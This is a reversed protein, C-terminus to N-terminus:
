SIPARRPLFGAAFAGALALASASLMADRFGQPHAATPLAHGGSAAIVIGFVAIAVLNGIRSIASNIGSATGVDNSEAAGMVAALLPSVLIAFGVGLVLTAPLVSGAYSAGVGLRMFLAYGIAAIAGGVVLPIRAGIRDALMGSFPSLVAVIAITPVLVAGAATPGYSMVDQLEFPVFLLAGGLPAYILFTYLNAIAFARSRFMRLPVIPADSRNEVVLFAAFLLLGAGLIALSLPDAMARQMHILAVVILGLAITLCASGLVDPKGREGGARSEPVLLYALLLVVAALPINILFVARWTFSQTLWGGLVPGMALTIASAAAWIGIARGRERADYTASILALSQPIMLAAGVGQVCRAVILQAPDNALACAISSLTFIWTGLAFLRKRGYRDGLAGGLLILAALFLLYGDVVWQVQAANAHLQRQIVPLALNVANTDIMGMSTAIIAAALVAVRSTRGAEFGAKTM